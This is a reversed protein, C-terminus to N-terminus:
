ASEFKEDELIKYVDLTVSVVAKLLDYCLLWEEDTIEKPGASYVITEAISLDMSTKNPREKDLFKVMLERCKPTITYWTKESDPKHVQEVLNFKILLEKGKEYNREEM